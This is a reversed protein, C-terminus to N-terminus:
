FIIYYGLCGSLFSGWEDLLCHWFWPFVVSLITAFSEREREVFSQLLLQKERIEDHLFLWAMKWKWSRSQEWKQWLDTARVMRHKSEKLSASADEAGSLSRWMAGRWWETSTYPLSLSLPSLYRFWCTSWVADFTM